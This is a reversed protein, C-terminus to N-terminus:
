YRMAISRLYLILILLSTLQVFFNMEFEQFTFPKIDEACKCAKVEILSLENKINRLKGRVNESNIMEWEELNASFGTAYYKRKQRFTIRLKISFRGDINTRRKEIIVRISPLPQKLISVFKLV